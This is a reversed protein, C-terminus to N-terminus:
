PGDRRRSRLREREIAVSLHCSVGRYYPSLGTHLNLITCGAAGLVGQRVLGTGYVLVLEPRLERLRDAVAPANVSASIMGRKMKRDAETSNGLHRVLTSERTKRDRFVRLLLMSGIAEARIDVTRAEANSVLSARAVREGRRLSLKWIRSNNYFRVPWTGTRSGM